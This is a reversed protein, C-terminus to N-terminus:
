SCGALLAIEHIVVAVKRPVDQVGPAAGDSACGPGQSAIPRRSGAHSRPVYRRVAVRQDIWDARAGRERQGALYVVTIQPEGVFRPLELPRLFETSAARNLAAAQGPRDLPLLGSPDPTALDEVAPLDDRV